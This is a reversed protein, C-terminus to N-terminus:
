SSLQTQEKVNNCWVDSIMDNGHAVWSCLQFPDVPIVNVINAFKQLEPM